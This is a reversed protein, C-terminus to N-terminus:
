FFTRISKHAYQFEITYDILKDNLSTKVVRNKSKVIVPITESTNVNELYVKESLMLQNIIENYSENIFGTNMSIVEVANVNERNFYFSQNNYIMTKAGEDVTYVSRSLIEDEYQENFTNKKFFFISQNVGHKNIFTCKYPEYKCENIYCVDIEAIENGSPSAVDQYIVVKDVEGWTYTDFFLDNCYSDEFTGNDLIVKEKFNEYSVGGQPDAYVIATSTDDDPALTQTNIIQDDKYWDIKIDFFSDRLVPIEVINDSLWYIKNNNILVNDSVAGYENPLGFSSQFEDKSGIYGYVGLYEGFSVPTSGVSVTYLTGDAEVWYFGDKVYDLVIPSIDINILDKNPETAYKRFSINPSAPKDTVLDGQWIYLDLDVYDLEVGGIPTYKIDLIGSSRARNLTM